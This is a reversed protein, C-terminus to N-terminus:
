RSTPLSLVMQPDMFHRGYISDLIGANPSMHSFALLEELSENCGKRQPPM